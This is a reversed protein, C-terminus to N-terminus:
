TILEGYDGLAEEVATDEGPVQTAFLDGLDRAQDARVLTARIDNSSADVVDAVDGSRLLPQVKQMIQRGQWEVEVEIGTEDTFDDIADQLIEAQPEGEEWQSWYTVTGDGGGSDGGSCGALALAAVTLARLVLRARRRTATTTMM